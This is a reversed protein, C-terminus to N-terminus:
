IQRVVICQINALRKLKKPISSATSTSIQGESLRQMWKLHSWGHRNLQSKTYAYYVFIGYVHMAVGKSRLKEIITPTACDCVFCQLEEAFHVIPESVQIRTLEITSNILWIDFKIESFIGYLPNKGFGTVYVSQTCQIKLISRGGTCRFQRSWQVYM